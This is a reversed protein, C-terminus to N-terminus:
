ENKHAAAIIKEDKKALLPDHLYETIGLDDFKLVLEHKHLELIDIELHAGDERADIVLNLTIKM